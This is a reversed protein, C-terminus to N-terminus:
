KNTSGLSSRSPSFSGAVGCGEVEPPGNGDVKIVDVSAGCVEVDADASVVAGVVVMALRGVLCNRSNPELDVV